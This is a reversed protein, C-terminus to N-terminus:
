FLGWLVHWVIDTWVHVGIPALFGYKKFAYAAITPLKALLRVTSIEIQEPDRVSLSGEYFTSLASVASSLM